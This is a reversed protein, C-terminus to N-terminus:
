GGKGKTEIAQKAAKADIALEKYKEEEGCYELCAELSKVCPERDKMQYYCRAIAYFIHPNDPTLALSMVYYTLAEEYREMSFVAAAKGHWYEVVRFNLFILFDFVGFAETFKKENLLQNAVAYVRDMFEWSIGYRDQVLLNLKEKDNVFEGSEVEKRIKQSAKVWVEYRANDAIQPMKREEELLYDALVKHGLQVKSYNDTFSDLVRQCIQAAHQEFPVLPNNYGERDLEAVATGISMVRNEIEPPLASQKEQVM